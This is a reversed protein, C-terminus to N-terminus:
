IKGVKFSVEMIDGRVRITYVKIINVPADATHTKYAELLQNDTFGLVRGIIHQSQSFDVNLPCYLKCKVTKNNPQLSLIKGTSAKMLYSEIDDIEYVGTM